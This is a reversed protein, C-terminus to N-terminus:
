IVRYDKKIEGAEKSGRMHEPIWFIGTQRGFLKKEETYRRYHGRCLHLARKIEDGSEEKASVSTYRVQEKLPAIDLTKFRLGVSEPRAEQKKKKSIFPAPEDKLTINKTHLLCLSFYLALFIAEFSRAMNRKEDESMSEQNPVLLALGRSKAIMAGNADLYAYEMLLPIMVESWTFGLLIESQVFAAGRVRINDIQEDSYQQPNAIRLRAMTIAINERPLEIDKKLPFQSVLWGVKRFLSNGGTLDKRVGESNSYRPMGAEFWALAWPSLPRPFDQEYDWFEQSNKEFFWRVTNDIDVPVLKEKTSSVVSPPMGPFIENWHRELCRM